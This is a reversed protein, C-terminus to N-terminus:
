EIGFIICSLVQKAYCSHDNPHVEVYKYLLHSLSVCLTDFRSLILALVSPVPVGSSVRSLYYRSWSNTVLVISRLPNLVSSNLDVIPSRVSPVCQGSAVACIAM